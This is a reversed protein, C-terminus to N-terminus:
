RGFYIDTIISVAAPIHEPTVGELRCQVAAETRCDPENFFDDVLKRNDFWRSISRIVKLTHQEQCTGFEAQLRGNQQPLTERYLHPRIYGVGSRM